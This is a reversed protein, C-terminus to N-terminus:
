AKDMWMGDIFDIAGAYVAAEQEETMEVGPCESPLSGEAGRCVACLFLHCLNCGPCGAEACEVRIHEM